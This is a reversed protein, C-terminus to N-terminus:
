AVRMTCWAVTANGSNDCAEEAFGLAVAREAANAAKRLTGDGASVLPDGIVIAGAAAAVRVNVLDGADKAIMLVNDGSAYASDTGKGYIENEMAFLAGYKVAATGAPAYTGASAREMLHGPLAIASLTGEYRDSDGGADVTTKRAPVVTM